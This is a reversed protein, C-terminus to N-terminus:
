LGARACPNPIPGQYGHIASLASGVLVTGVSKLVAQTTPPEGSSIPRGSYAMCEPSPAIAQGPQASWAVNDAPTAAFAPIALTLSLASILMRATNSM